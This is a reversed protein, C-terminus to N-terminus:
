KKVLAYVDGSASTYMSHNSYIKVCPFKEAGCLNMSVDKGYSSILAIQQQNKEREEKIDGMLLNIFGYAILVSFIILSLNILIPRYYIIKSATEIKHNLIDIQKNTKGLLDNISVANKENIDKGILNIFDKAYVPMSDIQSKISNNINISEQVIDYTLQQLQSTNQLLIQADDKSIIKEVNDGEINNNIYNPKIRM